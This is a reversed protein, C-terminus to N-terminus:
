GYSQQGKQYFTLTKDDNSGQLLRDCTSFSVSIDNDPAVLM